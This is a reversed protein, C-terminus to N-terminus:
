NKSKDVVWLVTLMKFIIPACVVLVAVFFMGRFVNLMYAPDNIYTASGIISIVAVYGYSFIIAITEIFQIGMDWGQVAHCLAYLSMLVIIITVVTLSMTDGGFLGLFLGIPLYILNEMYKTALADGFGQFINGVSGNTFVATGLWAIVVSVVMIILSWRQLANNFAAWVASPGSNLHRNHNNNSTFTNDHEETSIVRRTHNKM